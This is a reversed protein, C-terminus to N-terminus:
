EQPPPYTRHCTPCLDFPTVRLDLRVGVLVGCDECVEFQHKRFDNLIAIPIEHISTYNVLDCDGSKSQFEVSNGCRPCLVLVSDFLGM